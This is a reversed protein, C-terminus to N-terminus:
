RKGREGMSNRRHVGTRRAARAPLYRPHPTENAETLPRSVASAGRRIRGTSNRVGRNPGGICEHYISPCPGVNHRHQWTPSTRGAQHCGSVNRKVRRLWGIGHEYQRMGRGRGRAHGRIANSATAAPDSFLQRNLSSSRLGWRVPDSASVFVCLDPILKEAEGEPRPSWVRPRTLPRGAPLLFIEPL